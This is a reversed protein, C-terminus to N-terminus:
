RDQRDVSKECKAMTDLHEHCHIISDESHTNTLFSMCSSAMVDLHEHYHINSDEARTNTLFSMYSSSTSGLKTYASFQEKLITLKLQAQLINELDVKKKQKGKDQKGEEGAGSLQAGRGKGKCKEESRIYGPLTFSNSFVLNGLDEKQRRALDKGAGERVKLLPAVHHMQVSTAKFKIWVSDGKQCPCPRCAFTM